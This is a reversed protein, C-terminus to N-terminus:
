ERPPWRWTGPKGDADYRVDVNFFQGIPNLICLGVSYSHEDDLAGQPILRVQTVVAARPESKYEGGPTGFAQYHVIRGVTPKM